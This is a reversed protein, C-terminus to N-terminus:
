KHKHKGNTNTIAMFRQEQQSWQFVVSHLTKIKCGIQIFKEPNKGKVWLFIEALNWDSLFSLGLKVRM